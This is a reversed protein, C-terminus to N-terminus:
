KLEEDRCSGIWKAKVMARDDAAADIAVLREEDISLTGWNTPCNFESPM